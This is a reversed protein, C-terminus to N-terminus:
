PRITYNSILYHSKELKTRRKLIETAIHLRKHIWIFIQFIPELETFYTMPFKIPIINFRYIVKCLISMKIINIRGIWSCLIHKWKNADEEIKKKLAKYDELNLDKLQRREPVRFKLDWGKWAGQIWHRVRRLKTQTGREEGFILSQIWSFLCPM